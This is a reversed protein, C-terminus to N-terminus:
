YSLKICYLIVVVVVAVLIGLIILNVRRERRKAIVIARIAEPGIGMMPVRKLLSLRTLPM